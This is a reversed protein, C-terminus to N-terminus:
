MVGRKICGTKYNVADVEKILYDIARAPQGENGCTYIDVSFYNYEPYTHVALHSEALIFVFTDGYGEGFDFFKEDVINMKAKKIVKRFLAPTILSFDEVFIDLWCLRGRISHENKLTM